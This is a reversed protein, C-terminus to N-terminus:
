GNTEQKSYAKAISKILQGYPTDHVSVAPLKVTSQFPVDPALVPAPAPSARNMRLSPHLYGDDQNEDFGLIIHFLLM